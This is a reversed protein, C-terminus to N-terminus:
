QAVLENLAASELSDCPRNQREVPAPHTQAPPFQSDTKLRRFSGAPRIICPSGGLYSFGNCCHNGYRQISGMDGM